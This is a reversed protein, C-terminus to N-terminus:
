QGHGHRDVVTGREQLHEDKQKHNVAEAQIKAKCSDCISDSSPQGCVVCRREAGTQQQGEAEFLMELFTSETVHGELHLRQGFLTYPLLKVKHEALLKPFEDAVVIETTVLRNSLSLGVATEAVPKCLTCDNELIVKVPVNKQLLKLTGTVKEPFWVRGTSVGSIAGLLLILSVGELPGSFAVMRRDSAQVVCSPTRTVGYEEAKDRDMVIDYTELAIKPAATKIARATALADSCAECDAERTFLVLRVPERLGSLSERIIQLTADKIM